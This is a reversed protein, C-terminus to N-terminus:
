QADARRPGVSEFEVELWFNPSPLTNIADEVVARRKDQESALPDASSTAELFFLRKAGDSVAFDPTRPTNDIAPHLEVAYGRSLMLNFLYMEFFAAVFTDNDKSRIRALFEAVNRAPYAAFWKEMLVRVNHMRPHASRDVFAFLSEVKRYSALDDRIIDSFLVM